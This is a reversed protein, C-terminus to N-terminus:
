CCVKIVDIDGEYIVCCVLNLLGIKVEIEYKEVEDFLVNVVDRRNYGFNGIGLVFFVIFEMGMEDVKELCKRVM